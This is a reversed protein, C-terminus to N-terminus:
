RELVSRGRRWALLAIASGLIAAGLAPLLAAEGEVLTVLSAAVSLAGILGIRLWFTCEVLARWADNPMEPASNDVATSAGQTAAPAPVRQLVPFQPRDIIAARTTAVAHAPM